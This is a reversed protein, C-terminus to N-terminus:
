LYPGVAQKSPVQGQIIMAIAHQVERPRSIGYLTHYTRGRPILVARGGSASLGIGAGVPLSRRGGVGLAGGIGASASDEGLGFGSATVPVITGYNLVRGLLGQVIALDEIRNYTFQRSDYSIFSKEMVVRLNTIYYNHGRRYFEAFAFGALGCAALLWLHVELPMKFYETLLTGILAITSFVLLSTIRLYVLGIVIGTGILVAWFVLVNVANYQQLFPLPLRLRFGAVLVYIRELAYGLFILLLSIAYLHWFALPHPKLKMVLKEGSLPQVRTV